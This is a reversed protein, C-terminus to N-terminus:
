HMVEVGKAWFLATTILRGLAVETPVMTQSALSTINKAPSNAM